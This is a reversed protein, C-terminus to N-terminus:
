PPAPRAADRLEHAVAPRPALLMEYAVVDSPLVDDRYVCAEVVTAQELTVVADVRGELRRLVERAAVPSAIVIRAPHLPRIAAIAVEVYAEDFLGDAVLVVDLQWCSGISRAGKMASLESSLRARASAIAEERAAGIISSAPDIKVVDDEGVAGLIVGETTVVHEVGWLDLTGELRDAVASAVTLAGRSLAIVNPRVLQLKGLATALREGAANRSVAIYEAVTVVPVTSTRVVREAVSGLLARAIGRRGHTGMVVLDARCDRAAAAIGEWPAGEVVLTELERVQPRLPRAVLELEDKMAMVMTARQAPSPPVDFGEIVHVISVAAGLSAALGVAYDCARKSPGSFDFPVLIRQPPQTPM